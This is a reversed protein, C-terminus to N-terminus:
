QFARGYQPPAALKQRLPVAANLPWYPHRLFERAMLVIDAQGLRVLYDSPAEERASLAAPRPNSM